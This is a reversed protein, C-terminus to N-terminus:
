FNINTHILYTSKIMNNNFKSTSFSKDILENAFLLLDM